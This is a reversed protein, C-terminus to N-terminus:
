LHKLNATAKPQQQLETQKYIVRKTSNETDVPTTQNNLSYHM